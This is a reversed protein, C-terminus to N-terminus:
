TIAYVGCDVSNSQQQVPLVKIKLYKSECDMIACIQRKTQLPINGKFLSAMLNVEGENCGYTSITVWHLNGNHIIQVFPMSKYSKFNSKQGLVTDQFGNIETHQTAIMKQIANIVNDSLM